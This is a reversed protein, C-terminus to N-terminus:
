EQWLMGAFQVGAVPQGGGVSITTSGIDNVLFQVLRSEGAALQVRQFGKLEGGMYLQVVEEGDRSSDNTVRAAIQLSGAAAAVALESYHFSSYSLGYGFGYLPQGTFFRYTRGAMSYDTFPPLQDVSQYFTVPLRGAPNNDGALTQAIATGGEEGPYWAELIAAAGDGAAIASGTMLIVVVPKGTALATQLLQQQPAPLSIDTRDGGAFGPISLDSQESELDSNLGVFLLTLDATGAVQSAEALLADAPPIWVLEIGKRGQNQRYEIRLNHTSGADLHVQARQTQRPWATATNNDIVLRDDFYLLASDTGTCDDCEPRLVGITYDGTYPAQLMGTWRVSFQNRPIAATVAPDQTDWNFYVRPESRSLSPTGSLDGTAFYEAQLGTLVQAPVLAPYGSTYTSGLAYSVQATNVFRQQIGDLPTVIRSPTGFYNGLQMDPADAAPGIVAISRTGPDIPLVGDNKLLVISKNAAELALARHESYSINSYPVRDPPDFMGLRFRATFLRILSRDLAAEPLLGANVADALTSYENGCSLDTGAQVAAVAGLMVSPTYHHGASIGTIAGCDSVVYGPFGWSDRLRSQLLENSACAPVGNVANYSCMLSFAGAEAISARFAPLYTSDLDQESVEADFSVRLPEPGSHVAFHKPTAIAKLYQPDSGQIGTIFAKAMQSTLYPDEGYTEQGRGWRPDRFININPSWFTLGHYRSHDGNRQAENYKARAETSITDAVRGMLEVDWTAALGIAQPFVTALGARAVGHLGENWWDYDPVGLRPIAPAANQMQGAKETLTLRSVLDTARAASPLDPNLYPLM